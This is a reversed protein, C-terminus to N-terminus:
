DRGQGLYPVPLPAVENRADGSLIFAANQANDDRLASDAAVLEALTYETPNVGLQAALQAKGASVTSADETARNDHNLFYAVTNRDGDRRADSITTLEATTFQAGNLGLQAALQDHGAGQASAVGATATLAVIAAIVANKM